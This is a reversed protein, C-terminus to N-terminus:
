GFVRRASAESVIGVVESKRQARDQAFVQKLQQLEESTGTFNVVRNDPMSINVAAKAASKLPSHLSGSLASAGGIDGAGGGFGGGPFLVPSLIKTFWGLGGGSGGGGGFVSDLLEDSLQGLANTMAQGLRDTFFKQIYDGLDSNLAARVGGGFADRVQGKLRAKDIDQLERDAIAGAADGSLSPTLAQLEKVRQIRADLRALRKIEREDGALEALTRQQELEREVLALQRAAVRQSKLAEVYQWAAGEADAAAMGDSVLTNYTQLWTVQDRIADAVDSRGKAEVIDALMQLRTLELSERQSALTESDVGAGGTTVTTTQTASTKPRRDVADALNAYSADIQAGLTRAEGQLQNLLSQASQLNFDQANSRYRPALQSRDTNAIVQARGADSVNKLKEQFTVLTKADAIEQNLATRRRELTRITERAARRQGEELKGYSAAVADIATKVNTLADRTELQTQAFERAAVNVGNIRDMLIVVAAVSALLATAVPVSSLIRLTTALGAVGEAAKLALPGVKTMVAVFAAVSATVALITVANDAIMDFNEAVYNLAEALKLSVGSSANATGIYEGLSTRINTIASEITPATLSFQRQVEASANLIAKFVRDSTLQGEAGLSKLGGITTKFEDAIAKAIVPSNERLSRLEDGQLVGSSLGQSLQLIVAAAESTSAGSAQLAQNITRTVQLRQTETAGLEASARTLKAYLEVTSEYDSRTDRALDALVGQMRAVDSLETGAAALQNGSRTWQDAYSTVERVAQTLAVTSLGLAFAQSFDDGGRKLDANMKDFRRTVRAATKETIAVTKAMQKEVRSVDASVQYVLTELDTRAM